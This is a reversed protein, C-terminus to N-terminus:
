SHRIVFKDNNGESSCLLVCIVNSEKLFVFAGSKESAKSEKM